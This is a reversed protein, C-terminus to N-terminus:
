NPLVTNTDAAMVSYGSLSVTASNTSAPATVTELTMATAATGVINLPPSSVCQATGATSSLRATWLITGAGTAGDRLVVKIDPQAAVAAICAVFGTAVHRVGAVAAKSITAATTAGPQHMIGWELPKRVSQVPTAFAPVAAALLLSVVILKKM